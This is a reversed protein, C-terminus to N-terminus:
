ISRSSGPTHPFGVEAVPSLGQPPPLSNLGPPSRIGWSLTSSDMGQAARGGKRDHNSRPFYPRTRIRRANRVSSTRCIYPAAEPIPERAWRRSNNRWGPWPKPSCSRDGLLVSVTGQELNAAIIDMAGDHNVDAAALADPDGGAPVVIETFRADDTGKTQRMGAAVPLVVAFLSCVWRFWRRPYFIAM